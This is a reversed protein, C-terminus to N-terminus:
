QGQQNAQKPHVGLKGTALYGDTAILPWYQDICILLVIGSLRPLPQESALEKDPNARM